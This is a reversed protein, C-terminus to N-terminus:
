EFSTVSRKMEGNLVSEESMLGSIFNTSVIHAVTSALTALGSIPKTLLVTVVDTKAQSPQSAVTVACMLAGMM